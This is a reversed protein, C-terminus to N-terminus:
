DTLEGIEFESLQEEPQSEGSHQGSFMETGDTGCLQEIRDEGGPHQDVWETLDYVRDEIVTWCSDTSDNDEVETLTIQDGSEQTTESDDGTTDEDTQAQEDQDPDTTDEDDSTCGVTLLLATITAAASLTRPLRM